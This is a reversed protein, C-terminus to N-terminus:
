IFKLDHPCQADCYGVGYDAAAPNGYESKCGDAVMEAFYIVGNIGCTRKSVDVTFTLERNELMFQKCHHLSKWIM